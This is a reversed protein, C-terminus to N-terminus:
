GLAGSSAAGFIKGFIGATAAQSAAKAQTVHKNYMSHYQLQQQAHMNHEQQTVGMLLALKKAQFQVPILSGKRELEQIRQHQQVTLLQNKSEQDGLSAAAKEAETQGQASLSKVLSSIGSAGAAVRVSDLVNAQNQQFINKQFEAQKKSIQLNQFTKDLNLYPNRKDLSSFMYKLRELEKKNKRASERAYQEQAGYGTKWRRRRTRVGADRYFMDHSMMNDFGYGGAHMRGIM